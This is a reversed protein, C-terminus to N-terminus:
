FRVSSRKMVLHVTKLFHLRDEDKLAIIHGVLDQGVREKGEAPEHTGHKLVLLLFHGLVMVRLDAGVACGPLRLGIGVLGLPRLSGPTVAICM